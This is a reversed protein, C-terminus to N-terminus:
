GSSQASAKLRELLARMRPANAPDHEQLRRLLDPIAMGDRCRRSPDAGAELLQEFGAFDRSYIARCLPTEGEHMAMPADIDAGLAIMRQRLPTDHLRMACALGEDAARKRDDSAQVVADIASPHHPQGCVQAILSESPDTLEIARRVADKQTADIRGNRSGQAAQQVLARAQLQRKSAPLWSEPIPELVALIAKAPADVELLHDAFDIRFDWADRHKQLYAHGIGTFAGSKGQKRLAIRLHQLLRYHVYAEREPKALGSEYLSIARDLDGRVFALDGHDYDRWPHDPVRAEAERYLAEAQDDRGKLFAIRGLLLRAEASSPDLALADNLYQEAQVFHRPDANARIDDRGMPQFPRTDLAIEGLLVKAEANRPDLREARLLRSRADAVVVRTGNEHLLRRAEAVLASAQRRDEETGSTPAPPPAHAAIAEALRGYWPSNLHSDIIARQAFFRKAGEQDATALFRALKTDDFKALAPALWADVLVDPAPVDRWRGNMADDLETSADPAIADYTTFVIHRASAIETSVRSQLRMVYAMRLLLARREPTLAARKAQDTPVYDRIAANVQVTLPDRSWTEMAQIDRMRMSATMGCLAKQRLMGASFFDDLVPKLPAAAAPNGKAVVSEIIRRVDADHATIANLDGTWTLLSEMRKAMEPMEGRTLDCLPPSPASSSTETPDGCAALSVAALWIGLGLFGIRQM